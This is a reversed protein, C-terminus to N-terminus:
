LKFYKRTRSFKGGSNYWIIIEGTPLKDITPMFKIYTIVLILAIALLM